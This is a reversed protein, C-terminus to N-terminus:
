KVKLPKGGASQPLEPAPEIPEPEPEPQVPEVPEPEPAPRAPSPTAPRTTQPRERPTTREPPQAAREESRRRRVQRKRAREARLRQAKERRARQTRTLGKHKGRGRTAAFERAREGNSEGKVPTFGKRKSSAEDGEGSEIESAAAPGSGGADGGTAGLASPAAATAPTAAGGDRAEMVVAGGGAAGGAVVAVVAAKAALGHAALGFGGKAAIAGGAAAGAGGAGGGLGISALVSDKLGLSPLVPLAVAMMQRQRKVDNRFAACGPCSALHHRLHSRRLSGGRLTALEERIQECPIERANRRDILSSRAQFVLSKVQSVECEVVQAVEAHSLDAVESLVLAARQRDPLQAIDHLLDKLDARQAVDDSLRDVSIEIDESSQERRARLISLCRNRAITYLWAKFRIDKEDRLMDRHASLFAQQVADEAEDVSGLMHRCFGLVGRHHRDYLVEFARENGARVAAVLREDSLAGLLRRSGPLGLARARPM